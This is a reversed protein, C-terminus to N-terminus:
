TGNSPPTPVNSQVLDTLQSLNGYTDEKGTDAASQQLIIYDWEEASLATKPSVKATKQWKGSNNQRYEYVAKNNKVADYHTDVTSNDAYLIGLHIANYGADVLMDFLHNEMADVAMGDGIALIRIAIPDVNENSPDTTPKTTTVGEATTSTDDTVAGTTTGGASAITEGATTTATTSEATTQQKGGSTDTDNKGCAALSVLMILALLLAITKKM